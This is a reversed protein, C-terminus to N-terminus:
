NYRHLELVVEMKIGALIVANSTKALAVASPFVAVLKKAL